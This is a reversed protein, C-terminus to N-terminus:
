HTSLSLWTLFIRSYLSGPPFAFALQTDTEIFKFIQLPSFDDKVRLLLADGSGMFASKNHIERKREKIKKSM